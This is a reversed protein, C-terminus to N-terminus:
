AEKNSAKSKHNNNFLDELEKPTPVKTKLPVSVLPRKGTLEEISDLLRKIAQQYMLERQRQEELTRPQVAIFEGLEVFPLVKVFQRSLNVSQLYTKISVDVSKGVIIKIATMDIDNEFMRTMLYKRLLHWHVNQSESKHKPFAKEWLRKLCYNLQRPTIHNERHDESFLYKSTEKTKLYTDLVDITNRTLQIYAVVKEKETQIKVQYPTPKKNVKVEKVAKEFPKRLLESFDEVRFAINVGLQLIAREEVDGCVFMAKLQEVIFEHEIQTTETAKPIKRSKDFIISSCTNRLFSAMTFAMRRATNHKYSKEVEKFKDTGKVRVLVTTGKMLEKYWQYLYDGYDKKWTELMIAKEISYFEKIIAEKTKGLWLCFSDVDIQQPRSSTKLWKALRDKIITAM